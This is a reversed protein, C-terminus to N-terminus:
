RLHELDCELIVNQYNDNVALKTAILEYTPSDNQNCVSMCVSLCDCVCAFVCRGKVKRRQHINIDQIGDLFFNM